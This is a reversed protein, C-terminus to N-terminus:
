QAIIAHTLRAGNSSLKATPLSASGHAFIQVFDVPTGPVLRCFRVITVFGILHSKQALAAAREKGFFQLQKSRHVAFSQQVRL